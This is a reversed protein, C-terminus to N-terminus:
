WAGKLFPIRKGTPTVMNVHQSYHRKETKKPKNTGKNSIQYGIIIIIFHLIYMIAIIVNKQRKHSIQVKTQYQYGHYYNYSALM